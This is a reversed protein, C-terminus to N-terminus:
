RKINPFIGMYREIWCSLNQAIAEISMDKFPLDEVSKIIPTGPPRSDYCAFWLCDSIDRMSLGKVETMGRNGENTWPQGNYLRNRAKIRDFQPGKYEKIAELIQKASKANYHKDGAIYAKKM